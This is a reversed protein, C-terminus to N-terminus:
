VLTLIPSMDHHHAPVIGDSASKAVSFETSHTLSELHASVGDMVMEVAVDKVTVNNATRDVMSEVSSGRYM